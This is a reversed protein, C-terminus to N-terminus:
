AGENPQLEYFELAFRLFLSASEGLIPVHEGEPLIWLRSDPMAEHMGAAMSSPFCWDSDGHVIFTRTNIARLREPTFDVDDEAAALEPLMAAIGRIQRDGRPHRERMVEWWDPSYSDADTSALSARCAPRFHTGSGVLILSEILSPDELTMHMLTLAGASAGLARVSHVDLSDLLASVDAASQRTTFSGSPNTSQGHGRLEPIILRYHASLEQLLPEFYDANGSWGHVLLLPEGQGMMEVYMEFGNIDLTRSDVAEQAQLSFILSSVSLLGFLILLSSANKM